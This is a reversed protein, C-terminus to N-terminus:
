ARDAMRRRLRGTRARDAFRGGEPHRHGGGVVVHFEIGVRVVGLFQYEFQLWRVCSVAAAILFLCAAVAALRSWRIADSM